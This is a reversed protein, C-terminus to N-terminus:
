RAHIKVLNRDIARINPRGSLGMSRALESQLMGLVTQVGEAGYASLGWLVPRGILVARAGLALAKLVDTGRRFGGDILLTAKGGVADAISPLMDIPAALGTAHLDGHSSVVMGQIGNRVAALAEEPSLIGKLLFPVTVSKRLPDIMSWDTKMRPQRQPAGVTFCVAKCGVQVAQQVRKRVAEMDPEPYVQYWFGSKAEAAIKEFPQSSRSSVVMVTKAAAAGRATALEGESHFQQQDAMPGALIPAFLTEGFLETTLDLKQVDVLMRPRFTMRDFAKRDGGAITSYVTGPLKRKAVAEVEFLNVLEARPTIRGPPEGMPEQGQLLPSAALLSGLSGLVRRRTFPTM